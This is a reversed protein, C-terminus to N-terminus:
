EIRFGSFGSESSASLSATPTSSLDVALAREQSRRRHEYCDTCETLGQRRAALRSVVETATPLRPCRDTSHFVPDIDTSLPVHVTPNRVDRM